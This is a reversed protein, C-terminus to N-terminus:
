QYLYCFPGATTSFLQNSQIGETGAPTVVDLWQPDTAKGRASNPNMWNTGGEYMSARTKVQAELYNAWQWWHRDLQGHHMWFVLEAPSVYVDGGPDGWISFHGSSHLAQAGGFGNQLSDQFKGIASNGTIQAVLNAPKMWNTIFYNNVDRRLCRPNYGYGDARPNKPIKLAADMTPMLPGLTINMGAFPGTKVCGGGPGAPTGPMGSKHSVAEGNGGMSTESGDFIPSAPLDTYKAWNWYPQSGKFECETKLATEYAYIYYRHWHMFNATSHVSPTMNMHVVVFDDYRTKAGPYKTASLKSPKSLLCKVARIYEKREDKSLDGYEKRISVTQANCTKGRTMGDDLTGNLVKWANALAQKQIDELSLTQKKELPAGGAGSFLCLSAVLATILTTGVM